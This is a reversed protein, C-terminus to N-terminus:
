WLLKMISLWFHGVQLRHVREHRRDPDIALSVFGKLGYNISQHLLSTRKVITLVIKKDLSDVYSHPM